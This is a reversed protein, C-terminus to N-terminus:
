NPTQRFINLDPAEIRHIDGEYEQSLLAFIIQCEPQGLLLITEYIETLLPYIKQINKYGIIGTHMVRNELTLNRGIIQSDLWRLTQEMAVEYREQGMADDIENQISYILSTKLLPTNRVLISKDEAFISSIFDIHDKLVRFKHDFYIIRGANRYETFENLFQLFKIYKAHLSSVRYDSTLPFDAVFKYQWGKDEIETKLERNNTFFICKFGPVARHVHKFFDGFICSILLTHDTNHEPLFRADTMTAAGGLCTV